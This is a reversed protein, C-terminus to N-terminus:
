LEMVMRVGVVPTVLTIEKKAGDLSFGYKKYFEIANKNGKVVWLILKKYGKLKSICSDILAKGIGKKQHEKLVYVATIVACDQLETEKCSAYHLYAVINNEVEAVLTTEICNEAIEISKKVSMNDLYEQNIIGTYTEQWSKYRVHGISKADEFRAQRIIIDSM